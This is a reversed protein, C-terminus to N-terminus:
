EGRGTLPLYTKRQGVAVTATPGPPTVTPGGPTVSPSIATPTPGVLASQSEFAGSDCGSPAVGNGEVPRPLKRQDVAAVSPLACASAIAGDLASSGAQLAVSLTPGGNDKLGAVDLRPDTGLGLGCSNDSTVNGGGNVVPRGCNTTNGGIRNAIISNTVTILGNNVISTAFTYVTGAGANPPLLTNEYITSHLIDVANQSTANFIATGIVGTNNAITSNVIRARGNATMVLLGGGSANGSNVLPVIANFAILSRTLTLQNRANVGAGNEVGTNSLVQTEILETPISTDIGGGFQALNRLVTVRELKLTGTLGLIGGGVASNGASGRTITLNSIQVNGNEIVIGRGRNNPDILTTTQGAGIIVVSRSIVVTNTYTGAAVNITDCTADAMAAVITTFIGAGGAPSVACTRGVAQIEAPADPEARTQTAPIAIFAGIVAAILAMGACVRRLQRRPAEIQLTNDTHTV